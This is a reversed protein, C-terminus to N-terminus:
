VTYRLHVLPQLETVAFGARVQRIRAPTCRVVVASMAHHDVGFGPLEAPPSAMSFTQPTPTAISGSYLQAGRQGISQKAFTPDM